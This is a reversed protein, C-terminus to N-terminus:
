CRGRRSAARLETSPLADFRELEEEVQHEDHPERLARRQHGLVRVPRADAAANSTSAINHHAHIQKAHSVLTTSGSSPDTRM